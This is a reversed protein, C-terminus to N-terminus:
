DANNDESKNLNMPLFMIKGGCAVWFWFSKWVSFIKNGHGLIKFLSADSKLLLERFLRVFCDGM